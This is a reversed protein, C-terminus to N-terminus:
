SFVLHIRLRPYRNDPDIQSSTLPIWVPHAGQRGFSSPTLEPFQIAYPAIVRQYGPHFRLRSARLRGNECDIRGENAAIFGPGPGHIALGVDLEPLEFASAIGGVTLPTGARDADAFEKL